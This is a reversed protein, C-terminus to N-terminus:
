GQHNNMINQEMLEYYKLTYLAIIVIFVRLTASNTKMIRRKHHTQLFFVVCIVTSM